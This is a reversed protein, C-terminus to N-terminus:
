IAKKNESERSKTKKEYLKVVTEDAVNKNMYSHVTEILKKDDKIDSDKCKQAMEIIRAIDEKSIENATDHNSYGLDTKKRKPSLLNKLEQLSRKTRRWKYDIADLIDYKVMTAAIHTKRCINRIPELIFRDIKSISHDISKIMKKRDSKSFSLLYNSISCTAAISALMYDGNNQSLVKESIAGVGMLIPINQALNKGILRRGESVDALYAERNIIKQSEIKDEVVDLIHSNQVDSSSLKDITYEGMEMVLKEAKKKDGKYFEDAIKKLNNNYLLTGVQAELELYKAIDISNEGKNDVANIDAGNDILTKIIKRYSSPDNKFNFLAYMLPTMGHNNELNVDAGLSVLSNTLDLSGSKIALILLSHNDNLPDTLNLGEPMKSIVSLALHNDGTRVAEFIPHKSINNQSKNIEEISDIIKYTFNSDRLIAQYLCTDGDISELELNAGLKLLSDFVAEDDEICSWLVPSVRANDTLNINAGEAELLKLSRILGAKRKPNSKRIANITLNSFATRGYMDKLNLFQEFAADGLEDRCKDIMLTLTKQNIFSAYKCYFNLINQGYNNNFTVTSCLDFGKTIIDNNNTKSLYFLAPNDNEGVELLDEESCYNLITKLKSESRDRKAYKEILNTSNSGSRFDPKNQILLKVEDDWDNDFAIELLSKGDFIDNPNSHTTITKRIDDLNM